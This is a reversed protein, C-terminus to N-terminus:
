AHWVAWPVVQVLSGQKFFAYLLHFLAIKPHNTSSVNLCRRLPLYQHTVTSDEEDNTWLDCRAPNRELEHPAHAVDTNDNATLKWGVAQLIGAWKLLHIMREQQNYSTTIVWSYKPLWM